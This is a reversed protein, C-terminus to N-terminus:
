VTGRREELQQRIDTSSKRNLPYLSICAIGIGWMAIPLILYSIFMRDVVGPAQADVTADFGTMQLVWGGLGMALTMSAKIFWSYFANLSGERRHSTNLEDYDAVDAKMSPIYLWISSLAASEFLAPILQLYPMDPRLCILNLLHGFVSFLLMAIVMAKKDFREGLTTWVPLLAIGAVVLITQRWGLIISAAGMDGHSIFYINVYQNLGATSATGLVIFFSVAILGWLPACTASEKMSQWFSEKSTNSINAEYYREKVFLAPLVGILIILLGIFWSGIRMGIVLDPEGTIENIFLPGAFIALTWGGLVSSLKGFLSMWATIRTREDYNPTLEM